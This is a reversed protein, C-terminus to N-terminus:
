VRDQVLVHIYIIVYYSCGTIGMVGDVTVADLYNLLM